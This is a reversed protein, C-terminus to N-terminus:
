IFTALNRALEKKRASSKFVKGGEAREKARESQRVKSRKRKEEEEAGGAARGYILRFFVPFPENAPPLKSPLSLILHPILTSLSSLFPRQQLRGLWLFFVSRRKNTTYDPHIGLTRSHPPDPHTLSLCVFFFNWDAAVAAAAASGQLSSSPTDTPADPVFVDVCLSAAAAPLDCAPRGVGFM